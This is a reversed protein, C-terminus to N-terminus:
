DNVLNFLIKLVYAISASISEYTMSQSKNVEYIGLAFPLCTKKVYLM